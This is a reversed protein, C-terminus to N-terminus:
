LYILLLQARQDMQKKQAKLFENSAIGMYCKGTFFKFFDPLFISYNLSFVELVEM